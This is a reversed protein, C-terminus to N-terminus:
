MIGLAHYLQKVLDLATARIDANHRQYASFSLNGKGDMVAMKMTTSGIDIGVNYIKDM